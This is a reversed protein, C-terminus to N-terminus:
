KVGEEEYEEIEESELENMISDMDAKKEDSISDTNENLINELQENEGKEKNKLTASNCAFFGTLSIIILIYLLKKM